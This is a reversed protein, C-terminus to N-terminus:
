KGYGIALEIAKVVQLIHGRSPDPCNSKSCPVKKPEPEDLNPIPIKNHSGFLCYLRAQRAALCSAELVKQSM